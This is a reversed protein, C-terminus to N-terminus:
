SILQAEKLEQFIFNKVEVVSKEFRLYCIGHMDSPLELDGKYLCCVRSRGLRGIFYGFELIVNQRAKDKLLRLLNYYLILPNKEVTEKLFNDIEETSPNIKKMCDKYSERLGEKSLGLDDPTLIVFAFDVSSNAELKEIITMGRNPQEHLIVPNIKFEQLICKLESVLEHERGHVIFVRNKSATNETTRLDTLITDTLQLYRQTADGIAKENGEEDLPFMINSLQRLYDSNHGFYQKILVYTERKIDELEILDKESGCAREALTVLEEIAQKLNM